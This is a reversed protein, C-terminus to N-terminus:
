PPRDPAPQRVLQPARPRTAIRHSASSADASVTVPALGGTARLHPDDFQDQPRTIPACPLGIAEFRQRLLPMLWDRAQVRANNSALRADRSLDALGFEHCLLAWPTDSVAPLFIQEGDKVTFVDHVGWASIRSPMPTAPRGTVACM